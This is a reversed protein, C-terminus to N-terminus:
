REGFSQTPITSLQLANDAIRGYVGAMMRRRLPGKWCAMREALTDPRALRKTTM